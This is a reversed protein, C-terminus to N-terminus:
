FIWSSALEVGSNLNPLYNYICGIKEFLKKAYLIKEFLIM